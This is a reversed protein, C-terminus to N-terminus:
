GPADFEDNSIRGVPKRYLFWDASLYFLLQDLDHLKCMAKAPAMLEDKNISSNRTRIRFRNKLSLSGYLTLRRYHLQLFRACKDINVQIHKVVDRKLFSGM